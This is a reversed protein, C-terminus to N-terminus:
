RFYDGIVSTLPPLNRITQWFPAGSAEQGSVPVGSLPVGMFTLGVQGGGATTVRQRERGHAQQQPSMRFQFYPLDSTRWGTMPGSGFRSQAASFIAPLNDRLEQDNFSAFYNTIADHIQRAGEGTYQPLQRNTANNGPAQPFQRMAANLANNIRMTMPQAAPPQPQNLPPLEGPAAPPAVVQANLRPFTPPTGTPSPMGQSQDAAAGGLIRPRPIGTADFSQNLSEIADSMSMGSNIAQLLLDRAMQNRQGETSNKYHESQAIAQAQLMHAAATTSTASRPNFERTADFALRGAGLQHNLTHGYGSSATPLYPTYGAYDAMSQRRMYDRWDMDLLSQQQDHYGRMPNDPTPQLQGMVRMYGANNPDIRGAVGGLPGFINGGNRDLEQRFPHNPDPQWPSAPAAPQSPQFTPLPAGPAAFPAGGAIGGILGPPPPPPSNANIQQAIAPDMRRPTAERVMDDIPRTANLTSPDNQTARMLPFDPVVGGVRPAAGAGWPYTAPARPAFDPPLEADLKPTDEAPAAGIASNAALWRLANLQSNM